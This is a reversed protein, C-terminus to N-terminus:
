DPDLLDVATLDVEVDDARLSRRLVARVQQRLQRALEPLPTRGDVLVGLSVDVAGSVGPRARAAARVVTVGGLTAAAGRALDAVVQWRVRVGGAVPALGVSRPGAPLEMLLAEGQTQRVRDMVRDVLGSPTPGTAARLLGLARDLPAATRLAGRCHPCAAQHADAPELRGAGVQDVLAGFATGCPLVDGTSDTADPPHSMTTM